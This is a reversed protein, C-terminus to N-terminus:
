HGDTVKREHIIAERILDRSTSIRCSVDAHPDTCLANLASELIDIAGYLKRETEKIM